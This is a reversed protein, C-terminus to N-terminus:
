EAAQAPAGLREIEIALEARWKAAEDKPLLACLYDFTKACHLAVMAEPWPWHASARMQGILAELRNRVHQPDPVYAPAVVASEPGSLGAEAPAFMDLQAKAM